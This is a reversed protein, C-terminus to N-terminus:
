GAVRVLAARLLKDGKIYGKQLTQTVLGSEMDTDTDVGLGQHLDPNFPEGVPDITTIDYKELIKHLKQGITLTGTVWANEAIDQPVNEAARDFDDILPLVSKIIEDVANDHADVREREVRKKYNAFEARARQWGELNRQSEAQASTLNERLANLEDIRPADSSDSEVTEATAEVTEESTDTINEENNQIPTTKDSLRYAETWSLWVAGM